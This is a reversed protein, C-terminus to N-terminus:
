GRVLRVPFFVVLDPKTSQSFELATAAGNTHAVIGPEDVLDVSQSIEAVELKVLFGPEMREPDELVGGGVTVYIFWPIAGLWDFWLACATMLKVDGGGMWRLSFLGCGLAFVGLFVVGNHWIDSEWGAAVVWVAYM